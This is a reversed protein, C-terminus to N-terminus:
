KAGGEVETMESDSVHEDESNDAVQGSQQIVPEMLGSASDPARATPLPGDLPGSSRVDSAVPSHPGGHSHVEVDGLM